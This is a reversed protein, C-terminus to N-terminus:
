SGGSRIVVVPERMRMIVHKLRKMFRACHLQSAPLALANRSCLKDGVTEAPIVNQPDRNQRCYVVIHRDFLLDLKFIRTDVTKM